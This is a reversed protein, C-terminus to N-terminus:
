RHRTRQDLEDQLAAFLEERPSGATLLAALRGGTQRAMDHLPGLARLTLLPDCAGLLFRADAAHGEAFRRLLASKGIGAEGSVLMICGGATGALVDELATDLRGLKPDRGVFPVSSATV